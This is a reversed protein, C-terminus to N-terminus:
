HEEETQKEAQLVLGVHAVSPDDVTHVDDEPVDPDEVDKTDVLVQPRVDHHNALHYTPPLVTHYLIPYYHPTVNHQILVKRSTHTLDTYQVCLKALTSDSIFADERLNLWLLLM